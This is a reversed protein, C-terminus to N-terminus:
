QLTRRGSALLRIGDEEDQANISSVGLLTGMMLMSGVLSSGGESILPLTVGTLPLLHLNGCVILLMQSTIEFVCGFALLAHFRSRASAACQLGRLMLAFYVLLISLSFVMGFEESVAAFIYDSAVVAVKRASSLGLGAGFLGGSVISMLGQVLQRANEYTSNWPDRWISIREALYHFGPIENAYHSFVGGAAGAAALAALSLWTKGTGAYFMAITLLFYLLLAGLDRQMLLIACAAAGYLVGWIWQRARRGRTFLAAMVYVSVAKVIESPQFQMGGLRVWSRAASSTTYAFPWLLLALGGLAGLRLLLEHGDFARSFAVGTLLALFGPLLYRAQTMAKAPSIFVARLLIVSLSCLYLTLLYLVKDVPTWKRLLWLGAWTGLPLAASMLLSFLNIEGDKFSLLLMCIAQFALIAWMLPKEYARSTLRRLTEIQKQRTKQQRVDAKM